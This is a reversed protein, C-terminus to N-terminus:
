AQRADAFAVGEPFRANRGAGKVRLGQAPGPEDVTARAARRLELALRLPTSVAGLTGPSLPRVETSTAM